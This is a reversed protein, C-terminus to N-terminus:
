LHHTTQLPRFTVVLRVIWQTIRTCRGAGFRLFPITIRSESCLAYTLYTSFIKDLVSAVYGVAPIRFGPGVTIQLYM